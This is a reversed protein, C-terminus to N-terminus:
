QINQVKSSFCLAKIKKIYSFLFASFVQVNFVRTWLIYIKTQHYVSPRLRWVLMNNDEVTNQIDDISGHVIFYDVSGLVIYCYRM